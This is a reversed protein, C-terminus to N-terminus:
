PLPTGQGGTCVAGPELADSGNHKGLFTQLTNLDSATLRVQYGTKGSGGWDSAIIPAPINPYPSLLVKPYQRAINQLSNVTNADLSPQYTIWVAGHELSHVANESPVPQNYIGCNQLYANHPGGVPPIVRAGSTTYDVTGTRHDSTAALSYTKEVGLTVSTDPGGNSLGPAIIAIVIIGLVLIGGIVLAMLVPTSMASSAPKVNARWASANRTTPAQKLQSKPTAGSPQAKRPPQTKGTAAPTGSQGKKTTQQSM